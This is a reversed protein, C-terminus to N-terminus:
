DQLVYQGPAKDILPLVVGTAGMSPPPVPEGSREDLWAVWAPWWSGERLPTNQIWSDPDEYQDDASRTSIQYFRGPHGIESVIGANHGGSTLLFTVETDSLQHVKYVSHWPAVHDWQTGVAFIPVRIDSLVVPKEGVRYRGAAFDNNLFLERLYESHMRYPMRTADMNWSMLDNLEQREGILYDHVMRSWVLDNSRLIQFAGAMQNTDLYGKEWMMDELFTLESENIFLTLEGAETFDTQAALLTMSGIRDDGDRAMAAAAISLLTGGLCYGVAHVKREPLIASIADLAAMIGLQRYDDMGLNRDNEDPNKWSVMFVTYGQETLYKVLSNHPSLDLIYYKMIWAPAILIPEPRVKDTAPKYQILEILRNRFVVNGPTVAVDQGVKYKSPKNMKGDTMDILDELYNQFGHVLNMGKEQWTKEIVEPNTWLFNSPSFIDLLQRSAFELVNEHQRTVGRVGTTANHWWQQNLLFSQYMLNYPWKHWAEDSFRKDQPLPEICPKHDGESLACKAAHTALRATKRAAKNVLEAQKGPSFALHVAWDMWANTLAMPSLGATSRAVAAHVTRDFADALPHEPEREQGSPRTLLQASEQSQIVAPLETDEKTVLSKGTM